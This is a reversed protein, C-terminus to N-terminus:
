PVKINCIHVKFGNELPLHKKIYWNQSKETHNKLFLYGLNYEGPRVRNKCAKKKKFASEGNKSVYIKFYPFGETKGKPYLIKPLAYPKKNKKIFRVKVSCDEQKTKQDIIPIIAEKKYFINNISCKFLEKNVSRFRKMKKNPFNILRNKESEFTLKNQIESISQITNDLKQINSEVKQINSEVREINSEIRELDKDTKKQLDLAIVSIYLAIIAAILSLM